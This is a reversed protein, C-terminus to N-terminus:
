TPRTVHFRHLEKVLPKEMEDSVWVISESQFVSTVHKRRKQPVRAIGGQQLIINHSHALGLFRLSSDLAWKVKYLM